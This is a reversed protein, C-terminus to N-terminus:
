KCTLNNIEMNTSYPMSRVGEGNTVYDGIIFPDNRTHNEHRTLFIAVADSWGEDLGGSIKGGLCDAAASGGTLRNSVGHQYEHILVSNDLAADRKPYTEDFFYVNM